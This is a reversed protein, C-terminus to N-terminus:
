QQPTAVLNGSTDVSVQYVVNNTDKLYIASAANDSTTPVPEYWNGLPFSNVATIAGTSRNITINIQEVYLRKTTANVFWPVFHTYSIVPNNYDGWINSAQTQWYLANGYEFAKPLLTSNNGAQKAVLWQAGVPAM